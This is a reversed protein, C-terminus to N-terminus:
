HKPISPDRQWAKLLADDLDAIAAWEEPTSLDKIQFRIDLLRTRHAQIDRDYERFLGDLADRNADYDANLQELAAFYRRTVRDVDLLQIEMKDILELISTTKDPSAVAETANSRLEEIWDYAPENVGKKSSSCAAVMLTLVAVLIYVNYRKM